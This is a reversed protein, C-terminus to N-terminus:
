ITDRGRKGRHFLWLDIVHRLLSDMCVQCHEEPTSGFLRQWNDSARGGAATQQHKLMYAGFEVLVEPSLYGEYQAKGDVLDRTAGSDFRRVASM